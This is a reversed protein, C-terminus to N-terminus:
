SDGLVSFLECFALNLAILVNQLKIVDKLGIQKGNITM